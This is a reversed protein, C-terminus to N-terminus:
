QGCAIQVVDSLGAPVSIQGDFSAGWGVVSGDKRLALSFDGGAAVAAVQNLGTPIDLVGYNPVGWAAVTGDVFPTM